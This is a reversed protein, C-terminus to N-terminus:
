CATKKVVAFSEAGNSGSIRLKVYQYTCVIATSLVGIASANLVSGLNSTLDIGAKSALASTLARGAIFTTGAVLGTETGTVISNFAIDSMTDSDIGKQAIESLFNLTFGIGLGIATALGLGKLENRFITRNVKKTIGTDEYVKELKKENVVINGNEDKTVAKALELSQKKTLPTSEVGNDSKIRDTLKDAIKYQEQAVDSRGTLENRRAKSRIVNKAVDNELQDKPIVRLQDKYEPNLQAKASSDADKYFKVSAAKNDFLIDASALTNDAPVIAPSADIQKIVADLDYSDAIFNEAM